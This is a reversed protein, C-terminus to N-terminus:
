SCGGVRDADAVFCESVEHVVVLDVSPGVFVREVGVLDGGVVLVAGGEFLEGVLVVAGYPGDGFSEVVGADGSSGAFAWVGCLTVCLMLAM